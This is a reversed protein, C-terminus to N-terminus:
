EGRYSYILDCVDIYQLDHWSIVTDIDMDEKHYIIYIM